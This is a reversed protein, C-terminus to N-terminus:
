GARWPRVGDLTPADTVGPARAPQLSETEGRRHDYNGTLAQRDARAGPRAPPCAHHRWLWAVPLGSESRRDQATERPPTALVAVTRHGAQQWTPYPSGLASHPATHRHSTVHVRRAGSTAPSLHQPSRERERERQRKGCALAGGRGRGVFSARLRRGARRVVRLRPEARRELAAVSRANRREQRAEALSGVGALRVRVAHDGVLDVTAAAVRQTIWPGRHATLKVIRQRASMFAAVGTLTGLLGAHRRARSANRAADLAAACRLDLREVTGHQHGGVSRRARASWSIREAGALSRTPSRLTAPPATPRPAPRGPRAQWDRETTPGSLPQSAVRQLSRWRVRARRAAEPGVASGSVFVVLPMGHMSHSTSTSFECHQGLLGAPTPSPFDHEVAASTTQQLM